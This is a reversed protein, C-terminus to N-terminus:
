LQFRLWLAGEAAGGLRPVLPSSASRHRFRAYTGLLRRPSMAYRAEVGASVTRARPNGAAADRYTERATAASLTLNLTRRLEHFLKVGASDVVVGAATPIGADIIDRRASLAMSVLPTAYWEVRARWQAGRFDALLPSRYNRWQWGAALEASVLGSLDGRIGGLVEGGRATRECCPATTLSDAGRWSGQAFLMPGAALAQEARLTAAWVRQNRFSQDLRAGGAVTVPLYTFRDLDLKAQIQTRALEARVALTGELHDYLTASGDATAAAASYAPEHRRAYGASAGLGLVGGLATVVQAKAGGTEHDQGTLRAYRVLTGEASIAYRTPGSAGEARLSPAVVLAADAQRDTRRNLVNSDGEVRLTLSPHLALGGLQLGPAEPGPAARTGAVSERLLPAAPGIAFPDRDQAMAAPVLACPLSALAAGILCRAM